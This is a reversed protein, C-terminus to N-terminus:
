KEGKCKSYNAKYWLHQKTLDKQFKGNIISGVRSNVEKSVEKLVCNPEYGLKMIAGIAFVVIDAYADVIDEKEVKSENFDFLNKLYDFFGKVETKLYERKNKDIKFGKTELLEEIINTSDNIFDYDQKDLLRDRQFKKIREIPEEQQIEKYLEDVINRFKHAEDLYGKEQVFDVLDYMKLVLNTKKM